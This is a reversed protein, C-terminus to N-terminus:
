GEPTKTVQDLGSWSACDAGTTWIPSSSSTNSGDIDVRVVVGLWEDTQGGIDCLMTFPEVKPMAPEPFMFAVWTSTDGLQEQPGAQVLVEEIEHADVIAAVEDDDAAHEAASEVQEDTLRQAGAAPELQRPDPLTSGNESPSSDRDSSATPQDLIEPSQRTDFMQQAGVVAGILALIAVVSAAARALWTRRRARRIVDGPDVPRTPEAATDHLLQKLDRSM